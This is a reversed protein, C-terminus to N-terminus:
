DKPTFTVMCSSLSLLSVVIPVQTLCAATWFYCRYPYTLPQVVPVKHIHLFSRSLCVSLKSLVGRTDDEPPEHFRSQQQHTVLM